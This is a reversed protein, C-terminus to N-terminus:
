SIAIATEGAKKGVITAHKGKFYLSSGPGAFLADATKSDHVTSANLPDTGAAGYDGSEVAAVGAQYSAAISWADLIAMLAAQNSDYNTTGGILIANGQGALLSDRGTGAILVSRGAGGSLTCTGTGGLILTPGGGGDIVDNGGDAYLWVPLPVLNSVVVSASSGVANVVIRSISAASFTGLSKNNLTVAVAGGAAPNVLIVDGGPAGYVYLMSKGSVLPDLMEYAADKSPMVTFPNSTAGALSGDGATLTNSGSATTPDIASFTAVGSVAAVTLTSGAFATTASTITVKSTDGTVTNGYKDEM